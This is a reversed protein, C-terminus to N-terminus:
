WRFYLKVAVSNRAADQRIRQRQLTEQCKVCGDRVGGGAGSWGGLDPAACAIAGSRVLHPCAAYV